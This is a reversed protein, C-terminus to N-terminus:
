RVPDNIMMKDDGEAGEQGRKNGPLGIQLESLGQCDGVVFQGTYPPYCGEM